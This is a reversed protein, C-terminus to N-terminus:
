YTVNSLFSKDIYWPINQFSYICLLIQIIEPFCVNRKTHQFTDFLQIYEVINGSFVPFDWVFWSLAGLQMFSCPWTAVWPGSLRWQAQLNGWSMNGWSYKPRMFVCSHWLGFELRARGRFWGLVLCTTEDESGRNGWRHYISINTHSRGREWPDQSIWSLYNIYFCKTFQLLATHIYFLEKIKCSLMLTSIFPYVEKMILLINVQRKRGKGWPKQLWSPLHPKTPLWRAICSTTGIVLLPSNSICLPNQPRSSCLRHCPEPM